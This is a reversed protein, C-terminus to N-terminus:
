AALEDNRNYEVAFDIAMIGNILQEPSEVVEPQAAEAVAEAQAAHAAIEDQRDEQTPIEQNLHKIPIEGRETPIFFRDPQRETFSPRNPSLQESPM